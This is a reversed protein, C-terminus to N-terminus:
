GRRPPRTAALVALDRRAWTVSPELGAARLWELQDAASDPLDFGPTCPIVADEAREPVVVDALVFRGGPALAEAV